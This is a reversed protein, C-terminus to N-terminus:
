YVDRKYRKTKKLEEVYEKAQDETLGGETEAIRHLEADVDHAMREKDGCVFFEAGEQLWAWIDRAQERMRHQVYVKQAQDRSFATDLRLLGQDVYATFEDEYFFETKRHQEGFFLWNRGKAGTAAREELFARFPAVGTGPGVMIIATDPSEPMAFHRQQDQTYVPATEDEPWRENIFTSCVGRRVRGRVEYAVAVVTLHVEGPHAKLSSAISYLRGITKRLTPIFEAPTFRADPAEELIDLVDHNDNWGNMYHKLQEENGKEVLPAFHTAGRQICAELLKRSPSTIDYDAMLAERFTTPQGKRDPVEEDGTAGLRRLIADVLEPENRAFVGLADGPQYSLGSGALSIIHHRTDKSSGDGSLRRNLVHRAPFPNRPSYPAADPM